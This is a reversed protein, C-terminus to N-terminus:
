LNIFNIKDYYTLIGDIQTVWDSQSFIHNVRTVMFYSKFDNRWKAPIQTSSIANGPVIGWVGNIEISISLGPYHLTETKKADPNNRYLRGMVSKLANIETADFNNQGLNGPNKIISDKDSLAKSHESARQSKLKDDCNRLVSVSDGKKSSGVFMAAKYEQSGVNSQIQCTRTNGDGDIPDFVICSIKDTEGYNQDIVMLTNINDPNEVLALDISGGVASSIHTSIQKFFDIINVVEEKSNKVDDTSDAAADRPKTASQYANAIVDRHLLINQIKINGDSEVAKVAALNKCDSDFDKGSGESNKYNGDGLLLVTLPDGSTIGKSIKCKSYKPHFEVKLKNFVTREHAVGCTFARMLQDNIIRNVVYGVTVYVQNNSAEVESDGYGVNKIIGGLWAQAKEYWDRIHDGTYIVMAASNDFSGPDYNTLATVVEGDEIEDISKEGNGQADSAILQAVGKVPHVKNDLGTKYKLPGSTGSQGQGAVPDCGNCIVLQMELNQIAVSAAVATFNCIWFGEQTADFSFVAVTFGNLNTTGQSIGWSNKYGFQVDVINGPLLFYRQITLFDSATYCRITGHLKQALGHEGAYEIKVETLEPGPKFSSGYTSQWTERSEPLTKTGGGGCSKDHGTIYVFCPNRDQVSKGQLTQVSNLLGRRAKIVDFANSIPNRRYLSEAM